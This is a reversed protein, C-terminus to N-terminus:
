NDNVIVNLRKKRELIMKAFARMQKPHPTPVRTLNGPEESSPNETFRIKTNTKVPKHSQNKIEANLLYM